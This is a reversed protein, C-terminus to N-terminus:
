HHHNGFHPEQTLLVVQFKNSVDVNQSWGVGPESGGELTSLRARGKLPGLNEGHQCETHITKSFFFTHM